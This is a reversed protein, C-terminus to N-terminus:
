RDFAHFWLLPLTGERLTAGYCAGLNDRCAAPTRAWGASLNAHPRVRFSQAGPWMTTALWSGRVDCSDITTKCRQTWAAAGVPVRGRNLLAAQDRACRLSSCATTVCSADPGTIPLPRYRASWM